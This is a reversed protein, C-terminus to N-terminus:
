ENLLRLKFKSENFKGAAMMLNIVVWDPLDQVNKIKKFVEIDLDSKKLEEETSTKIEITVSKYGRNKLEDLTQAFIETSNEDNLDIQFSKIDILEKESMLSVQGM